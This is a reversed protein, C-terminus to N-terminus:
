VDSREPPTWGLVILADRTADPIVVRAEGDFELEHVAVHVVVETLHAPRSKIEFGVTGSAINQGDLEITGIGAANLNLKLRQM